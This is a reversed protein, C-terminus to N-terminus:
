MMQYTNPRSFWMQAPPGLFIFVILCVVLLFILFASINFIITSQGYNKVFRKELFKKVEPNDM